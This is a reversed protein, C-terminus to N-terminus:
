RRSVAVLALVVLVLPVLLVPAGSVQGQSSDVFLEQTVVQTYESLQDAETIKEVLGNVVVCVM